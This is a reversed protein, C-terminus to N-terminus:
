AVKAKHARELGVPMKDVVLPKFAVGAIEQACQGIVMGDADAITVTIQDGPHLNRDVPLAALTVSAVLLGAGAVDPFMQVDLSLQQDTTM